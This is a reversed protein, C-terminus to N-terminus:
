LLNLSNEKYKKGFHADMLGSSEERALVKFM